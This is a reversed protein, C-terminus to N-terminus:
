APLTLMCQVHTFWGKRASVDNAFPDFIDFPNGVSSSLVYKEMWDFTSPLGGFGVNQSYVIFVFMSKM